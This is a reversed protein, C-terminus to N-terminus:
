SQGFSIGLKGHLTELQWSRAPSWCGPQNPSGQSCCALAVGGFNCTSSSHGGPCLLSHGAPLSCMGGARWGPFGTCPILANLIFISSPFQLKGLSQLLWFLSGLAKPPQNPQQTTQGQLTEQRLLGSRGMPNKRSTVGQLEACGSCFEPGPASPAGHSAPILM